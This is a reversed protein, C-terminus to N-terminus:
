ICFYNGTSINMIKVDNYIFRVSQLFRPPPPQQPLAKDPFVFLFEGFETVTAGHIKKTLCSNQRSGGEMQFTYKKLGWEKLLKTV